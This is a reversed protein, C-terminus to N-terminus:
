KEAHVCVLFKELCINQIASVSKRNMEYLITNKKPELDIPFNNICETEGLNLISKGQTPITAVPQGTCPRKKQSLPSVKLVKEGRYVLFVINGNGKM